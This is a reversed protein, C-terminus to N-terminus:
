LNGANLYVTEGTEASRVIAEQVQVVHLTSAAATPTDLERRKVARLFAQLSKTFAGEIKGDVETATSPGSYIVKESMNGIYLKMERTSGELFISGNSGHVELHSDAIVPFSPPEIWSSHLSVLTGRHFQLIAVYGDVVNNLGKVSDLVGHHKLASVSKVRDGLWDIILDIDHSSMFHIPTTQGAWKIMQGPVWATDWKHSEIFAINGLAGEQILEKIRINEPLWRQSYNVMLVASKGKSISILEKAEDISMTLPKEVLVDVGAELAARVPDGHAFDPTAVSVAQLEGTGGPGLVELMERYDSFLRVGHQKALDEVKAPNHDALAVLKANPQEAYVRTHRRGLIGVGIVGVGIQDKM